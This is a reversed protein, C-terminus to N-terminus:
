YSSTTTPTSSYTTYNSTGGAASVAITDIEGDIERDRYTHKEIESDGM